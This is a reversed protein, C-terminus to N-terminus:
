SYAVPVAVVDTGTDIKLTDTAGKLLYLVEGALITTNAIVTGNAYSQTLIRDANGTSSHVIRVITASAVNNATTSLGVQTGKLKIVDPM